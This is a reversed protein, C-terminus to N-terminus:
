AGVRGFRRIAVVALLQLCVACGLLVMTLPSGVLQGLYGPSALEAIVAAGAPLGAVLMGTFRAQATASRADAELRVTQELTEAVSRLLGALDGGSDRQLLIAAVVTDYAGGGARQQLRALVLETSEGLDLGRGAAGLEVAVPGSLGSSAAQTIAARISHGGALADALTRAVLPAAGQLEAVYRRRRTRVAMVALWPGAAGLGAAVIPGAVLWGAAALTALALISLRRREVATPTRGERGAARLPAIAQALVAAVRSSEIGAIAEWAALVGVAAAVAALAAAPTM